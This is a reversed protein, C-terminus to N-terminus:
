LNKYASSKTEIGFGFRNITSINKNNVTTKSFSNLPVFLLQRFVKYMKSTSQAFNKM